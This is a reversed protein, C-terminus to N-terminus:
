RDQKKKLNCGKQPYTASLQSHQVSDQYHYFQMEFEMMASDERVVSDISMVSPTKGLLKKYERGPYIWTQHEVSDSRVIYYDYIGGSHIGDHEYHSVLKVYTSTIPTEKNFWFLGGNYGGEYIGVLLFRPNSVEIKDANDNVWVSMEGANSISIAYNEQWEGMYIYNDKPAHFSNYHEFVIYDKWVTMETGDPLEFFFVRRNVLPEVIWLYIVPLLLVVVCGSLEPIATKWKKRKITRCFAWVVLVFPLLAPVGLCLLLLLLITTVLGMIYCAIILAVNIVAAILLLWWTIKDDRTMKM